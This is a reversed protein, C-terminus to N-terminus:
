TSCESSVTVHTTLGHVGSATVCRKRM